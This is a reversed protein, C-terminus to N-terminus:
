DRTENVLRFRESVERGNESTRGSHARQFLFCCALFFIPSLQTHLIDVPRVESADQSPPKYVGVPTRSM